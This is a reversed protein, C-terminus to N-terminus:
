GGGEKYSRCFSCNTLASKRNEIHKHKQLGSLATLGEKRRSGVKEGDILDM